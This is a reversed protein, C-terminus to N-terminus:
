TPRLDVQHLSVTAGAFAQMCFRRIYGIILKAIVKTAAAADDGRPIEIM